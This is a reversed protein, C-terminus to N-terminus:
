RQAVLQDKLQLSNLEAHIETLQAKLSSIEADQVLTHQAQTYHGSWCGAPCPNM